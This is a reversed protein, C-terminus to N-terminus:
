TLDLSGPCQAGGNARKPSPGSCLTSPIKGAIPWEEVDYFSKKVLDMRLLKRVISFLDCAAPTACCTPTLRTDTPPCPTRYSSMSGSPHLGHTRQGRDHRQGGWRGRHWVSAGRCRLVSANCFEVRM